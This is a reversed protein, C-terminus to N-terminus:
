LVLFSHKLNQRFININDAELTSVPLMNWIQTTSPFFSYSMYDTRARHPLRVKMHSNRLNYSPKCTSFYGSPFDILNNVLKYLIILKAMTRRKALTPLNAISLKESYHGSWKKLSIKLAIYQASLRTDKTHLCSTTMTYLTGGLSYLFYHRILFYLLPHVVTCM